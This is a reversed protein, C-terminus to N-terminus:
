WLRSQPVESLLQPVPLTTKPHFLNIRKPYLAYSVHPFLFIEQVSEHSFAVPLLEHSLFSFCNFFM